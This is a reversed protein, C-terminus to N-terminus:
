RDGVLGLSLLDDWAPTHCLAGGAWGSVYAIQGRSRSWLAVDEDFRMGSVGPRCGATRLQDADLMSVETTLTKPSTELLEACLRLSSEVDTYALASAPCRAALRALDVLEEDSCTRLLATTLRCFAEVPPVVRRGAEGMPSYSLFGLVDVPGSTRMPPAGIDTTRVLLRSSDDAHWLARAQTRFPSEPRVALPAGISTARSGDLWITDDSTLIAQWATGLAAATTSKGSRTHGPLILGRGDAVICAAAHIPVGSRTDRLSRGIAGLRAHVADHLRAPPADGRRPLDGQAEHVARADDALDALLHEIVRDVPAGVPSV